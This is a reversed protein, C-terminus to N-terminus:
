IAGMAHELISSFREDRLVCPALDPRTPTEVNPLEHLLPKTCQFITICSKEILCLLTPGCWIDPPYTAPNRSPSCVMSLDITVLWRPDSFRSGLPHTCMSTPFGSVEISLYIATPMHYCDSPGPGLRLALVSPAMPSRLNVLRSSKHITVDCTGFSRYSYDQYSPLAVTTSAHDYAVPTLSLLARAHFSIMVFRPNSLYPTRSLPFRLVEFGSNGIAGLTPGM